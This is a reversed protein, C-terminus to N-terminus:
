SWDRWNSLTRSAKAAYSPKTKFQTAFTPFDLSLLTTAKRAPYDRGTNSDVPKVQGMCDSLTRRRGPNALDPAAPGLSWKATGDPDRTSVPRGLEDLPIEPKWLGARREASASV